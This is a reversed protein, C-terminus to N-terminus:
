LCVVWTYSLSSCKILCDDKSHCISKIQDAGMFKNAATGVAAELVSQDQLKM